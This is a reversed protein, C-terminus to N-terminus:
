RSMTKKHWLKRRRAVNPVPQADCRSLLLTHSCAVRPLLRYRRPLALRLAVICGGISLDAAFRRRAARAGRHMFSVIHTHTARYPHPHVPAHLFLSVRPACVLQYQLLQRPRRQLWQLEREVSLV